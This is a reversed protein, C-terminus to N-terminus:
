RNRKADRRHAHRSDQEEWPNQVTPVTPLVGPVPAAFVLHLALGLILPM